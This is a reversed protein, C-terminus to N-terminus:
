TLIDQSHVMHVDKRTDLGREHIEANAHYLSIIRGLM